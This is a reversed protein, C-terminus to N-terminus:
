AGEEGSEETGTGEDEEGSRPVPYWCLTTSRTFAGWGRGRGGGGGGGCSGVAGRLGAAPPTQLWRLAAAEADEVEESEEGEGEGEGGEVAAAAKRVDWRARTAVLDASAAVAATAAAECIDRRVYFLMYARADRVVEERGVTHVETDSCEVWQAVHVGDEGSGHADGGKGGPAPLPAPVRRYTIYHGSYPGGLHVIVSMLDYLTSLPLPPAAAPTAGTGRRPPGRPIGDPRPVLPGALTYPAVDLTLDFRVHESNKYGAQLRNVHLNLIPPTTLLITRRIANHGLPAALLRRTRGDRAHAVHSCAPNDCVWGSTPSNGFYSRLLMEISTSVSSGRMGGGGSGGYYMGAAPSPPTLSLTPERSLAWASPTAPLVAGGNASPPVEHCALCETRRAVICQFPNALCPFSLTSGGGGGGGSGSAGARLAHQRWSDGGGGRWRVCARAWRRRAPLTGVGGALLPKRKTEAVAEEVGRPRTLRWHRALAGASAVVASVDREDVASLVATLLEHADHQQGGRSEFYNNLQGLALRPHLPGSSGGGGIGIGGSGGRARGLVAALRGMAGDEDGRGDGTSHLPWNLARLIGLFKAAVGGVSDEGEGGGGGEGDTVAEEGGQGGRAWAASDSARRVAVASALICRLWEHAPSLPALAQLVSNLFCTNGTNVLGRVLDPPLLAPPPASSAASAGAAPAAGNSRGRAGSM